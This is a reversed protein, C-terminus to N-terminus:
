LRENGLSFNDNLRLDMAKDSTEGEESFENRVVSLILAGDLVIEWRAVIAMKKISVNLRM